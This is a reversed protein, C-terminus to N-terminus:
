IFKEVNGEVGVIVFDRTLMALILAVWFYARRWKRVIIVMKRRGTKAFNKSLRIKM